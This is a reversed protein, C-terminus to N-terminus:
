SLLPEALSAAPTTAALPQRDDEVGRTNRQDFSRICLLCALASLITFSATVALLLVFHSGAANAEGAAGDASSGTSAAPPVDVRNQQQWQWADYLTQLAQVAEVAAADGPQAANATVIVAVPPDLRPRLQVRSTWRGDTDAKLLHPQGETGPEYVLSFSSLSQPSPVPTSPPFSAQAHAMSWDAATLLYPPADATPWRTPPLPLGYYTMDRGEQLECAMLRATDMLSAHVSGLSPAFAAPLHWDTSHLRGDSGLEHGSPQQALQDLPVAAAPLGFGASSMGLDDFLSQVITEWPQAHLEELVLGLLVHDLPSAARDSSPQSISPPPHPLELRLMYQLQLRRSPLPYATCNEAQGTTELQWEEEMIGNAVLPMLAALGATHTLLHTMTVRLWSRHISSNCSLPSLGFFGRGSVPRSSCSCNAPQPEDSWPLYPFVSKVTSNFRLSGARVAMNILLATIPAAAAHQSWLDEAQVPEAVRSDVRRVGSVTLGVPVFPCRAKAPVPIINYSTLSFMQIIAAGMAPPGGAGHKDRLRDLVSQMAQELAIAPPQLSSCRSGHLQVHPASATSSNVIAAAALFSPFEGNVSLFGRGPQPESWRAYSSATMVLPVQSPTSGSQPAFWVAVSYDGAAVTVAEPLRFVLERDGTGAAVDLLESQAILNSGADYLAARATIRATANATLLRVTSIQATFNLRFPLQYLANQWLSLPASPLPFGNSLLTTPPSPNLCRLAAAGASDSNFAAVCLLLVVLALSRISTLGNSSSSAASHHSATMAASFATEADWQQQLATPPFSPLLAPPYFATLPISSKVCSNLTAPPSERSPLPSSRLVAWAAWTFV